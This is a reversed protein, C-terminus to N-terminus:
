FLFLFALNVLACLTVGLATPVLASLLTVKLSKTEKYVTILSTSCPFHFLSFLIVCVATVPTWGALRLIEGIGEAGLAEGIGASTYGVVAIPLVIENAPFGLIFAALIVGDMGLARGLPDLLDCIHRLLSVDGVTLSCLLWLCLGAPAAVVVARALIKVTRDVLSRCLVRIVAPKRYPPLELAFFSPEGRFATKSLVFTMFFTALVGFVIILALFLAGLAGSTDQALFCGVILIVTPFKGNCPVLSNTVIALRRERESDIIRCGVIGAANCGLGMCMTLSQKGCAGVCRFPKDLNYAIRPLYGLDELLTFLPFFIAMPPLMVSVVEALVTYAGDLLAGTLWPPAGVLEFLRYLLDGLRLFCYSLLASPYNAAVVTIYLIGFLFLLMLPFAFIKSTIIRDAREGQPRKKESVTKEKIESSKRLLDVALADSIDGAEIGMDSFRRRFELLCGTYEYSAYRGIYEKARESLTAGSLLSAAIHYAPRIKGEEGAIARVLPSIDVGFLHPCSDSEDEERLLNDKIARLLPTHTRKKKAIIPVVPAGLIESLRPTDVRIGRREAEDILNVAVVVRDTVELVSLALGIGREMSTADCVVVTLDADGYLIYDAAVEEERSHPYLSYTGPIDVLTYEEGLESISGEALGVTKGTWNGTHQKLGTLANFLTSKGVNPNGALAIKYECGCGECKECCGKCGNFVGM